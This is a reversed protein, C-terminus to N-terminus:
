AVAKESATVRFVPATPKHLPFREVGSQELQAVHARAGALDAHWLPDEEAGRAEDYTVADPKRQFFLGGRSGNKRLPEEDVAVQAAWPDIIKRAEAKRKRADTEDDVARRYEAIADDVEDPIDDVEPAGADRWEIFADAQRALFDIRKDDRPVWAHRVGEVGEVTWGYLWWGFGTVHMGWQMQDMHEAPIDDKDGWGADHSKVEVGFTGLSASIGFGDPTARHLPTERNGFLAINGGITVVDDLKGLEAIIGAERDHGRRTHANGHFTSGNLKGDLISRWAKRSGVAIDHIESATVGDARDDENAFADDAIVLMPLDALEAAHRHSEEHAEVDEYFGDADDSDDVIYFGHEACEYTRANAVTV